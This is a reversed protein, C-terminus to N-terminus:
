YYGKYIMYNIKQYILTFGTTTPALSGSNFSHTLDAKGTGNLSAIPITGSKLAFIATSFKNTSNDYAGSHFYGSTAVDISSGNWGTKALIQFNYKFNRVQGGSNVTYFVASSENELAIDWELFATGFYMRIYRFKDSTTTGSANTYTGEFEINIRDGANLQTFDIENNGFYQNATKNVVNYTTDVVTSIPLTYATNMTYKQIINGGTASSTYAPINLIDNDLTANGSTGNTTLTIRGQYQPVNLNNDVLSASGSDGNVTLTLDGGGGGGSTYEPINLTGNVFAAAGSTGNTTLSIQEQYIPINLIDNSLNAVGGTGTTTLTLDSGGGADSYIPINLTGNVLAAPGSTGTTSLSLEEQYIPINLNNGSLNAPGGTNVTSLTLDGSPISGPIDAQTIDRAIISGDGDNSIFLCKNNQADKLGLKKVKLEANLIGNTDYDIFKNLSM